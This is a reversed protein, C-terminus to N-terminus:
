RRRQPTSPNIPCDFSMHGFNNGLRKLFYVPNARKVGQYYNCQPQECRYCQTKACNKASHGTKKCVTCIPVSRYQSASSSQPSRIQSRAGFRPTAPPSSQLTAQSFPSTTVQTSRRPPTFPPSQLSASPLTPSMKTHLFGPRDAKKAQQPSSDLKVRNLQSTIELVEESARRRISAVHKAMAWELHTAALEFAQALQDKDIDYVGGSKYTYASNLTCVLNFFVKRLSYHFGSQKSFIRLPKLSEGLGASTFLGKGGREVQFLAGAARLSRLFEDCRKEVGRRLNRVDREEKQRLQPFGKEELRVGRHAEFNITKDLLLLCDSFITNYRNELVFHYLEDNTM